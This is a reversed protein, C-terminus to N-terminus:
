ILDENAIDGVINELINELTIIGLANGQDDVVVAFHDPDDKMRILLRKAYEDRNVQFPKHMVTALREGGDLGLLDFLFIVGVVRENEPSILPYRSYPHRDAEEIVEDVSATVPFSIVDNMPVMLDAARVIGFRFLRDIIKTERKEASGSVRGRRYLHILEERTSLINYRGGEGGSAGMLLRALYTVPMVVPWLLFSVLRLFPAVLISIRDAHYLFLSKPIVEGFVLLLPTIVMTAILAGSGHYISVTLATATATCAVVSINTGVLVISFFQEPNVLFKELVRARWSGRKARSRLKIKNCSILATETGSFFGSLMITGVILIISDIWNM